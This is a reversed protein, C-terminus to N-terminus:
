KVAERVLVSVPNQTGADDDENTNTIKNDQWEVM